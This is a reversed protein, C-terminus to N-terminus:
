KGLTQHSPAVGGSWTPPLFSEKAMVDYTFDPGLGIFINDDHAM